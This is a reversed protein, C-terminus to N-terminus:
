VSGSCGVVGSTEFDSGRRLERFDEEAAEGVGASVETRVRDRVFDEVSDALGEVGTRVGDRRCVVAM